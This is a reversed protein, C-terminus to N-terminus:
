FSGSGALLHFPYMLQIKYTLFCKPDDLNDKNEKMRHLVDSILRYFVKFFLLNRRM